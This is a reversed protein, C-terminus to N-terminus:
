WFPCWGLYSQSLNEDSTAQNILRDIQEKVTLPIDNNFDFGTLKQNIRNLVLQAIKNLEEYEIEDNNEEYYNLLQREENELQKKEDNEKEINDESKEDKEKLLLLEPLISKNENFTNRRNFKKFSFKNVVSSSINPNVIVNNLLSNNININQNIINHEKEKMKMIMPLMLKFSVLPDYVLSNLIAVLSDRNNRLLEMVKESIIRFTGEIKSVGLAKVIMRTLRFPVKEPFKSRKMAIEFCDGYDIHIIKGSQRDMMLNNPHRDGLGLLYGVVSMVSLSRSYNTRRILWSECNVSKKWIIDSLEYGSTSHNVEKFADLKSMLSGSDYKPYLQYISSIEINPIFNNNKRHETILNSITDVNPLFGILGTIHSLPIVPYITILLKKSSTNKDLSLISNVYSFVQIIREDQRLDEHSKLLYKYEKNDTGIFSIKRPRQKTNLVYLYKDMKKLFPPKDENEFSSINKTKGIILQKREKNLKNLFLYGPLGVQNERINSLKPSIYELSITSMNKYKSQINNYVTQYIEWAEKIYRPNPNKIYEKLYNEAEKLDYYFCQYFHIEYLSKPSSNMKKHVKSLQNILDNYNRNILMKSAEEIAEKWKEHLLLSCNNLENIFENYDNIVKKLNPNKKEVLYLIQNAISKKKISSSYKNIILPIFSENPAKACINALASILNELIRLNKNGLRSILLPLIQTFIKSNCENFISSILSLLENNEGAINFFIDVLRVCNQYGKDLNNGILLLCKKIGILANKAFMIELSLSIKVKKHYDDVESENANKRRLHLCKYAGYNFISLYNWYKYNTDYYKTALILYHNIYNVQKYNAKINETQFYHNFSIANNINRNYQFFLEKGKLFQANQINKLKSIKNILSINKKHILQPSYNGTSKRIYFESQAKAKKSVKYNVKTSIYKQRIYLGYEGYIKGKIKDDLQQYINNSDQSNKTDILDVLIKSNKIAEDIEGKEFLCKNYSLKMKIKLANLLFIKNKDHEEKIFIDIRKILEQFIVKSQEFFGFKRYVNGMRSKIAFLEKEPFIFNYLFLLRKCFNPELSIKSLSKDWQQKMEKLYNLDGDHYRKYEIIDEIYSIEQNNILFSYARIQSEKLLTKIKLIIINKADNKYKTAVDFNGDKINILSSILNLDFMISEDIKISYYNDNYIADNYSIYGNLIDKEDKEIGIKSEKNKILFIDTNIDKKNDYISEDIEENEKLKNNIISIKEKIIDWKNLKAYIGIYFMQNEITEKLENYKNSNNNEEKTEIIINNNKEEELIIEEWNLLGKLCIYKKKKLYKIKKDDNEDKLKTNIMELAKRYEELNIYWNFKNEYNEVDEYQHEDALKILGLACEPIGLKNYLKILKNFNTTDNNMIFDKELYYLSKAYAKLGYSIDGFKHYNIIFMNVNRREMSEILDLLKLFLNDTCKPNNIAANICNTLKTKVQDNSNMYLTYFGYLSLESAISIYYDIIARCNYIYISPSQQLLLKICSKYWEDWDEGLTCHNNDFVKLVLENDINKSKVLSDSDYRIKFIKKKMKKNDTLSYFGHMCNIKCTETSINEIYEECSLFSYNESNMILSKLEKRFNSYNLIGFREFNNFIFPLYSVFQERNNKNIRKYIDFIKNIISLNTGSNDSKLFYDLKKKLDYSDYSFDFLISEFKRLTQGIIFPHLVKSNKNNCIQEMMCLLGYINKINTEEYLKLQIEEHLIKFYSSIENNKFFLIFLKNYALFDDDVAKIISIYKPIIILYYNELEKGFKEFLISIIKSIVDIYDKELYNIVLPIFDNLYKKIKDEFNNMITRICDFLLKQQEIQFKPIVQIITPLIIDILYSEKETISKILNNLSSIIKISLEQQKNMKLLEMLYLIAKINSPDNFSIDIEEYQNLKHNYTMIQIGKEEIAKYSTDLEFLYKINNNESLYNNIRSPDIAGCLGFIKLAYLICNENEINLINKYLIEIIIKSNQKELINNINNIKKKTLEYLINNYENESQKYSMLSSTRIREIIEEINFIDLNEHKIILYVIELIIDYYSEDISEMRMIDFCLILMLDCCEKFIENDKVETILDSKLLEIVTRFINLILISKPEELLILHISVYFINVILSPFFNNILYKSIYYLIYSLNEKEIIDNLYYFSFVIDYIIKKIYVFYFNKEHDVLIFDHFLKIIKEKFSNEKHLLFEGFSRLIPSTKDKLLIELFIKKKSFINYIYIQMEADKNDMGSSIFSDIINHSIYESLNIDDQYIKVFDCLLLDAIKKYIVKPVLELVPLLKDNLFLLMDKFFLNNPILSLLTLGNIIFQIQEISLKSSEILNNKIPIDNNNQESIQSGLDNRINILTNSLKSNIFKKKNEISRNFHELNFFEGCLIFSIINLSTISTIINELDDNNYFKMISVLYDIKSSTLPTKFLTSIISVLDISNIQEIYIKNKNNLFDSLCKLLEDDITNKSFLSNVLSFFQNIFIQYNENKIIYSFKGLTLLTQNLIEINTKLNLLSNIYELFQKEYKEKFENKNLYYLEPIFKIFEKKINIDNSETCKILNNILEKYVSCDKFFPPESLNISEVVIMYGSVLNYDSPFGNNCTLNENYEQLAYDYILKLYFYKTEKDRGVFMKIFNMILEGTIVRIEKRNDKFCNIVRLFKDFGDKGIIKNFALLSSNKFIQCFLQISIIKRNGDELYNEDETFQDLLDDINNEILERIYIGGQKLLRGIFNNLKDIIPSNPSKIQYFSKILIPMMLYLFSIIQNNEMLSNYVGDICQILLEPNIKVKSFFNSIEKITGNVKNRNKRIYISLLDATNFNLENIKSSESEIAKFINELEQNESFSQNLNFSIKKLTNTRKDNVNLSLSSSYNKNFSMKKKM